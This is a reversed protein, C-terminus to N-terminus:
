VIPDSNDLKKIINFDPPISKKKLRDCTVRVAVSSIDGVIFRRNLNTAVSATTGGGVFCDLVMDGKDTSCQIIRELLKEPKQTPYGVREKSTRGVMDIDWVDKMNVLTHWGIDDKYEDVGAFSYKKYQRNYSKEKSPIFKHKQGKSYFFITDHKRSFRVQTSGGSKYFWIIENVFRKEGFVEDLVIRLRHSARWDCHLFISGTDKLCRHILRIRQEMWEIYANIGGKWRDDFSRLERDSGSTIEHQKNSFFPPDIYCMDVSEPPIDKLWDLCDGCVVSNQQPNIKM